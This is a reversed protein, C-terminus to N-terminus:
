RGPCLRRARQENLIIQGQDRIFRKQELKEQREELSLQRGLAREEAAIADLYDLDREDLAYGRARLEAAITIATQRNEDNIKFQEAIRAQNEAKFVTPDTTWGKETRLENWRNREEPISIDFDVVQSGNYLSFINPDKQEGLKQLSELNEFPVFGLEIQAAYNAAYEPSNTDLPV